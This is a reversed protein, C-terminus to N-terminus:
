VEKQTIPKFIMTRTWVVSYQQRLFPFAAKGDVQAEGPQLEETVGVFQHDGDHDLPLQCFFDGEDTELHDM